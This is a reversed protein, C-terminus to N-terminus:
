GVGSPKRGPLGGQWKEGQAVGRGDLSRRHLKISSMYEMLGLNWSLLESDAV